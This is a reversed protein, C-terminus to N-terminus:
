TTFIDFDFNKATPNKEMSAAKNIERIGGRRPGEYIDAGMVKGLGKDGSVAVVVCFGVEGRGGMWGGHICWRWNLNLNGLALRWMHLTFIM